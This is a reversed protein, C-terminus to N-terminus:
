WLRAIHNQHPEKQYSYIGNKFNSFCFQFVLQFYQPKSPRSALMGLNSHSFDTSWGTLESQRQPPVILAIDLFVCSRAAECRYTADRWPTAVHGMLAGGGFGWVKHKQLRPDLCPLCSFNPTCSIRSATLGAWLHQFPRNQRLDSCWPSPQPTLAPPLSAKSSSCQPFYCILRYLHNCLIARALPVAPYCWCFLM